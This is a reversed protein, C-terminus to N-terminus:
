KKLRISIIKIESEPKSGAGVKTNGIKEITDEGSIVKGFVTHKGDLHPTDGLNIFFQSGNTNPGSNAMALCAKEAKISELSNDYKYGINEYAEQLNMKEIIALFEAQKAKFTEQSNIGLKQYIPMIAAQMSQQPGLKSNPKGKPFALEKDLGLQKANIEDKFKYGPDGTGTGLPCGGQIMFGKIVRHFILGDYYPKTVMEGTAPDKFEKTGEALGIFNKVTEPAAKPYLEVEFDGLSTKVQVIPKTSEAFLNFCFFLAILSLKKM